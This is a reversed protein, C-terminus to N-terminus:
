VRKISDHAILAGIIQHLFDIHKRRLWLPKDSELPLTKVHLETPINGPVSVADEVMEM